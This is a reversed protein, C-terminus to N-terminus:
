PTHPLKPLAESPWSNFLDSHGFVATVLMHDTFQRLGPDSTVQPQAKRAAAQQVPGKDLCIWDDLRSTATLGATHRKQRYSHPRSGGMFVSAFGLQKM